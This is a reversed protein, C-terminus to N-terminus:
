GRHPNETNVHTHKINLWLILLFGCVNWAETFKIGQQMFSVALNKQYQPILARCTYISLKMLYFSEDLTTCSDVVDPLLFLTPHPLQPTPCFNFFPTLCFLPTLLERGVIHISAVYCHLLLSTGQLPNQLRYVSIPAWIRM